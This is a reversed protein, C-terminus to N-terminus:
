TPTYATIIVPTIDTKIRKTCHISWQNNIAYVVFNEERLHFHLVPPHIAQTTAADHYIYIYM